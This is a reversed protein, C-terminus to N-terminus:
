WRRNARSIESSCQSCRFYLFAFFFPSLLSGWLAAPHQAPWHQSCPLTLSWPLMVFLLLVEGWNASGLCEETQKKDPPIGLKDQLSNSRKKVSFLSIGLLLHHCLLWCCGTWIILHFQALLHHVTMPYIQGTSCFSCCIHDESLPLAGVPAESHYLVWCHATRRSYILIQEMKISGVCGMDWLLHFM